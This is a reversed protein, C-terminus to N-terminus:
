PTEWNTSTKEFVDNVYLLKYNVVGEFWDILCSDEVGVVCDIIIAKELTSVGKLIVTDLPLTVVFRSSQVISWKSPIELYANRKFKSHLPSSAKHM